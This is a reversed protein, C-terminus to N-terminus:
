LRKIGPDGIYSTLDCFRSAITADRKQSRHFRTIEKESFAPEWVFM